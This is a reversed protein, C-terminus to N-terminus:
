AVDLISRETRSHDVLLVLLLNLIFTAIKAIKTKDNAMKPSFPTVPPAIFGAVGSQVHLSLEPPSEPEPSLDSCLDFESCSDFESSESFPFHAGFGGFDGFGVFGVVGVQGFGGVVLGSHGFVGGHTSGRGGGVLGVVGDHEDVGGGM